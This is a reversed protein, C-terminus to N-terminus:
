ATTIKGSDDVVYGYEALQEATLKFALTAVKAKKQKIAASAIAKREVGDPNDELLGSLVGMAESVLEEDSVEAKKGAAKGGKGPMKVIEDPVALIRPGRGSAERAATTELGARKPEPVGINHTIMGDLVSIDDGLFDGPLGADELAKMLIFFNSSKNLASGDGVLVLSKGDGSPAVRSPDGVSYHQTYEEGGESAFIIRAATTTAVLEGTKRRYEFFAFRSEKWTFNGDIPMPLADVFDSARLSARKDAM